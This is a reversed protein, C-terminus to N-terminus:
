SWVLMENNSSSALGFVRLNSEVIFVRYKQGRQSLAFSTFRSTPRHPQVHYFGAWCWRELGIVFLSFVINDFSHLRNFFLGCLNFDSIILGLMAGSIRSLRSSGICGGGKFIGGGVLVAKWGWTRSQWKRWETCAVPLPASSRWCTPPSWHLRPAPPPSSSSYPRSRIPNTRKFSAGYVSSSYRLNACTIIAYQKYEHTPTYLISLSNTHSLM